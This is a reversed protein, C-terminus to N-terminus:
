EAAIQMGEPKHVAFQLDPCFETESVPSPGDPEPCDGGTPTSIQGGVKGPVAARHTRVVFHIEAKHGSILGPGWGVYGPPTGNAVRGGVNAIGDDGVLFGGGWIVSTMVAPDANEDYAPLDDENCGPPSCFEPNNFIAVWVTHPSGAELGSTNITWEIGSDTRWLLSDGVEVSSRKLEIVGVAIGNLYLM